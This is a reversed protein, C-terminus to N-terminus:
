TENPACARREHAPKACAKALLARDEIRDLRDRFIARAKANTRNELDTRSRNSIAFSSPCISRTFTKGNRAAPRPASPVNTRARDRDRGDRHRTFVFDVRRSRRRARSTVDEAVGVIDFDRRREQELRARRALRAATRGEVNTGRIARDCRTGLRTVFTRARLSSSPFPQVVAYDSFVRAWEMMQDKGLEFPHPLTVIAEELFRHMRRM